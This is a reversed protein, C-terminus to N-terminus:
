RGNAQMKIKVASAGAAAGGHAADVFQQAPAGGYTVGKIFNVKRPVSPSSTNPNDALRGLGSILTVDTGNKFDVDSLNITRAELSVRAGDMSANSVNMDGAAKMDIASSRRPGMAEYAVSYGAIFQRAALGDSTIDVEGARVRIDGTVIVQTNKASVRTGGAYFVSQSTAEGYDADLAGLITSDSLSVLTNPYAEYFANGLSIVPATSKIVSNRVEVSKGAVVWYMTEPEASAALLGEMAERPSVLDPHSAALGEDMTFTDQAALVVPGPFGLMGLFREGRDGPVSINKGVVYQRSGPYGPILGEAEAGHLSLLSAPTSKNEYKFVQGSEPVGRVLVADRGMARALAKARAEAVGGDGSGKLEEKLKNERVATTRTQVLGPDAKQATFVVTDAVLLNTAEVKGSAIKQEQAVVSETIKAVAPLATKFGKILASGGVQEKLRFNIVPGFAKSGPMVFTMQGASLTSSGGGPLTAMAKGELVLLKFGGNQTATVVISTGIVSATASASRIVGGGRGKPSHFMVSGKELSVDRKEPAVSFISNAGIRAVTGDAAVLEARSAPGTSLVNAAHFTEQSQVRRTKRSPMEMVNVENVVEMVKMENLGGGAAVLSGGAIGLCM